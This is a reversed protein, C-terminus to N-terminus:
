NETALLISGRNVVLNRGPSQEDNLNNVSTPNKIAGVGMWLHAVAPLENGLEWYLLAQTYQMVARLLRDRQGHMAFATMLAATADIPVTRSSITMDDGPIFRQFFEREQHNPTIDYILEGQLPEIAANAGLSIISALERGVTIWTMADEVTESEAEIVVSFDGPVPVDSHSEIYRTSLIIDSSVGDRIYKSVLSDGIRFIVSVHARGTIRYLNTPM